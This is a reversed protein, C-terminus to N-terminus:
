RSKRAMPSLGPAAPAGRVLRLFGKDRHQLFGEGGQGEGREGDGGVCGIGDELHRGGGHRVGLDQVEHLRLELGLAHVQLHAFEAIVDLGIGRHFVLLEVGVEELVLGVQVAVVLVALAADHGHRVALHVHFGEAGIRLLDLGHALELVAGGDGDGVVRRVRAACQDQQLLLAEDRELVRLVDRGRRDVDDLIRLLELETFQFGGQQRARQLVHVQGQDVGVVRDLGLQVRGLVRQEDFAAIRGVGVQDGGAGVAGVVRRDGLQHLRQVRGLHLLEDLVLVLARDHRRESRRRWGSCM